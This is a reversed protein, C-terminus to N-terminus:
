FMQLKSYHLHFLGFPFPFIWLQCVQWVHSLSNHTVGLFFTLSGTESAQQKVLSTSYWCHTQRISSSKDDMLNHLPKCHVSLGPLIVYSLKHCRSIGSSVGFTWTKTKQLQWHLVGLTCLLLRGECYPAKELNFLGLQRQREKYSLHELGEIMKVAWRWYTWRKKTSPVGASCGTNWIKRVLASYLLMVERLRSAIGIALCFSGSHPYKPLFETQRM